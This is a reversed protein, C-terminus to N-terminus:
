AAARAMAAAYDFAERWSPFGRLVVGDPPEAYWRWQPDLADNHGTLVRWKRPRSEMRALQENLRRIAAALDRPMPEDAM